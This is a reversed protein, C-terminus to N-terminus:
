LPLHTPHKQKTILSIATVTNSRLPALKYNLCPSIHNSNTQVPLKLQIFHAIPIQLSHYTRQEISLLYEAPLNTRPLNVKVFIDRRQITPHPTCQTLGFSIQLLRTPSLRPFTDYHEKKIYEFFAFSFSIKTM